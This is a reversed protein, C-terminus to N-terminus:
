FWLSFRVNELQILHSVRHPVQMTSAYCVVSVKIKRFNLLEFLRCLISIEGKEYQKHKDSNVHSV